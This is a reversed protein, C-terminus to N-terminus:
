SISGRMPTGYVFSTTTKITRLKSGSPRNARLRTQAVAPPVTRAPKATFEAQFGALVQDLQALGYKRVPSPKLWCNIAAKLTALDEQALVRTPLPPLLPQEADRLGRMTQSTHQQLWLLTPRNVLWASPELGKIAKPLNLLKARQLGELRHGKYLKSNLTEAALGKEYALYFLNCLSCRGQAYAVTAMELQALRKSLACLVVPAAPADMVMSNHSDQGVPPTEGSSAPRSPTRGHGLFAGDPKGSTVNILNVSAVLSSFLRHVLLWSDSAPSRPLGGRCLGAARHKRLVQMRLASALLGLGGGLLRMKRQRM